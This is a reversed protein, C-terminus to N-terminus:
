IILIIRGIKKIREKAHYTKQILGLSNSDLIVVEITQKKANTAYLKTM